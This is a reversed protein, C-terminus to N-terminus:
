LLLSAPVVDVGLDRLRRNIDQCIQEESLGGSAYTAHGDEVVTVRYARRMAGHATANICFDSQMGCITVHDVDRSAFVDTLNTKEFSDSNFKEVISEGKRPEIEEAIEWPATGARLEDDQHSVYVLETGRSRAREILETLTTLFATRREPALADVLGRQVDVVLLAESMFRSKTTATAFAKVDAPTEIQRQANELHGRM